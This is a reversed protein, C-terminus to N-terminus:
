MYSTSSKKIYEQVKKEKYNLITNITDIYIEKEDNDKCTDIYKLTIYIINIESEKWYNKFEDSLTYDNSHINNDIKKDQLNNNIIDIFHQLTHHITSKKDYTDRLKNLGSICKLYLFEYKEDDKNYWVFSKELPNYINHLHERSDGKFNRIIGQFQNPYDYNISNNDISIKTGKEKYNLLILRIICTLPELIINYDYNFYSKNIMDLLNNM